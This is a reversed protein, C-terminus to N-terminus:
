GAVLPNEECSEPAMDVQARSRARTYLALIPFFPFFPQRKKRM